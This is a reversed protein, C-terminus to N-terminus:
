APIVPSIALPLGCLRESASRRASRKVPRSSVRLLQRVTIPSYVTSFADFPMRSAKWWNMRGTGGRYSASDTAHLDNDIRVIEADRELHIFRNEIENRFSTHSRRGHDGVPGCDCIGGPANIQPRFAGEPCMQVESFEPRNS